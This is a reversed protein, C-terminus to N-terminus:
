DSLGLLLRGQELCICFFPSAQGESYCVTPSIFKKSSQSILKYSPQIWRNQPEDTIVHPAYGMLNCSVWFSLAVGQRATQIFVVTSQSRNPAQGLQRWSREWKTGGFFERGKKLIQTRRSCESIKRADRRDCSHKLIAKQWVFRAVRFAPNTDQKFYGHDLFCWM